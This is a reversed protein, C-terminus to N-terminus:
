QLYGPLKPVRKVDSLGQGINTVKIELGSIVLYRKLVIFFCQINILPDLPRKGQASVELVEPIHVQSHSIEGPCLLIVLVSCYVFRFISLDINGVQIKIQCLKFCLFSIVLLCKCVGFFGKSYTHFSAM